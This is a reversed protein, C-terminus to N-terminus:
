MGGTVIRLAKRLAYTYADLPSFGDISEIVDPDGRDALGIEDTLRKAIADRTRKDAAVNSTGITALGTDTLEYVVRGNPRRVLGTRTVRLEDLTVAELIASEVFAAPTGSFWAVIQKHTVETKREGVLGRVFRLIARRMAVPGQEVHSYDISRGIDRRSAKM